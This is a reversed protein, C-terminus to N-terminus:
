KPASGPTTLQEPIRDISAIIQKALEGYKESADADDFDVTGVCAFGPFSRALFYHLGSARHKFFLRTPADEIIATPRLTGKAVETLESWSSTNNAHIGVRAKKARSHALGSGGVVVWDRPVALQCKRKADKVVKWGEPPAGVVGEAHPQAGEPKGAQTGADQAGSLWPAPSGDGKAGVCPALLFVTLCAAAIQKSWLIGCRRTSIRM